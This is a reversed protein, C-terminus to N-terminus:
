NGISQFSASKERKVSPLAVARQAREAEPEALAVHGAGDLRDAVAGPPQEADAHGGEREGLEGALGGEAGGRHVEGHRLALVDGDDAPHVAVGDGLDRPVKLALPDVAGLGLSPPSGGRGVQRLVALLLLSDVPIATPRDAPLLPLLPRVPHSNGSCQGSQRDSRHSHSVTQQFCYNPLHSASPCLTLNTKIFASVFSSPRFSDARIPNAVFM